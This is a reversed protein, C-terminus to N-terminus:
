YMERVEGGGGGGGLIRFFFGRGQNHTHPSALAVKHPYKSCNYCVITAKIGDVNHPYFIIHSYLVFPVGM